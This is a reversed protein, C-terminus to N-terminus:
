KFAPAALLLKCSSSSSSAAFMISLALSPLIENERPNSRYEELAQDKFCKAYFPGCFASCHWKWFYSLVIRFHQQFREEFEPQSAPQASRGIDYGVTFLEEFTSTLFLFFSTCESSDSWPLFKPRNRVRLYQVSKMAVCSVISGKIGAETFNSATM